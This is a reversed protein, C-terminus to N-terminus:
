KSIVGMEPLRPALEVPLDKHGTPQDELVRVNSTPQMIIEGCDRDPADRHPNVAPPGPLNDRHAGTAGHGPVWARAQHGRGDPVTILIIENKLM